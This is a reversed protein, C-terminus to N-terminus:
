ASGAVDYQRHRKNIFVLAIDARTARMEEVHEGLDADIVRFSINPHRVIAEIARPAARVLLSPIAVIRVEDRIDGAIAAIELRARRWEALTNRTHRM